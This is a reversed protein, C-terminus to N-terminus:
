EMRMPLVTSPRCIFIYGDPHASIVSPVEEYVEGLRWTNYRGSFTIRLYEDLWPRVTTAGYLANLSDLDTYEGRAFQEYASRTLWLALDNSVTYPQFTIEDLVPISDGWETRILSLDHVLLEYLDQPAVLSGSVWIAAEEAEEDERPTLDPDSCDTWFSDACNMYSGDCDYCSEIDKIAALWVPQDQDERPDYDGLYRCTDGVCELGWYLYWCPDCGPCMPVAERFVYAMTIQTQEPETCRCGDSSCSLGLAAALLLLILSFRICRNM